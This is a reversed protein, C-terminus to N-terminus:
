PYFLAAGPSFYEVQHQRTAPKEQTEQASLTCYTRYFSHLRFLFLIRDTQFNPIYGIALSKGTPSPRKIGCYTTYKLSILMTHYWHVLNRHTLHGPLSLNSSVTPKIDAMWYTSKTEGTLDCCISRSTSVLGASETGCWRGTQLQWEFASKKSENGQKWIWVGEQAFTKTHHGPFCM